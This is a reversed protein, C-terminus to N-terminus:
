KCISQNAVITWFDLRSAWDVGLFLSTCTGISNLTSPEGLLSMSLPFSVTLHHALELTDSVWVRLCLVAVSTLLQLQREWQIVMMHLIMLLPPCIPGLYDIWIKWKNCGCSLKDVLSNLPWDVFTWFFFEIGSWPLITSCWLSLILLIYILGCVECLGGLWELCGWWHEWCSRFVGLGGELKAFRQWVWITNAIPGPLWGATRTKFQLETRNQELVPWFGLSSEDQCTTVRGQCLVAPIQGPQFWGSTGFKHNRCSQSWNLIHTRIM